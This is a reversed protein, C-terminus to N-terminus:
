NKAAHDIFRKTLDSMKEQHAQLLSVAKEQTLDAPKEKGKVLASLDYQDWNQAMRADQNQAALEVIKKLDADEFEQASSLLKDMHHMKLVYHKERRDSPPDRDPNPMDLHISKYEYELDLDILANEDSNKGTGPAMQRFEVLRLIAAEQEPTSADSAVSRVKQAFLDDHGEVVQFLEKNREKQLILAEETWKPDAKTGERLSSLGSLKHNEVVSEYSSDMEKLFEDYRGAEYDSRIQAIAEKGLRQQVIIQSESAPPKSGEDALLLGSSLLSALILSITKM